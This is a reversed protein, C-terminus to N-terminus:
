VDYQGDSVMAQCAEPISTNQLNEAFTDASDFRTTQRNNDTLFGGWRLISQGIAREINAQSGPQADRLVRDLAYPNMDLASAATEIQQNTSM